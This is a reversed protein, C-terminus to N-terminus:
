TEMAEVEAYKEPPLHAKAWELLQLKAELREHATPIGEILTHVKYDVRVPGYHVLIEAWFQLRREKPAVYIQAEQFDDIGKKGRVELNSVCGKYNSMNPIILKNEQSLAVLHWLSHLPKFVEFENGTGLGLLRVRRPSPGLLFFQRAFSADSNPNELEAELHSCWSKVQTISFDGVLFKFRTSGNVVKEDIKQTWYRYGANSITATWVCNPIEDDLFAFQRCLYDRKIAAEFRLEIHPGSPAFAGHFRHTGGGNNLGLTWSADEGEIRFALYKSDEKIDDAIIAAVVSKSEGRWISKFCHFGSLTPPLALSYEWPALIDEIKM